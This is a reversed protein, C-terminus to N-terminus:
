FLGVPLAAVDWSSIILEDREVGRGRGVTYPIPVTEIHFDRFVRRIDPHDNLSVIARGRLSRLRDAMKEYEVFPFPM